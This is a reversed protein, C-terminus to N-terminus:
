TPAALTPIRRCALIKINRSRGAFFLNLQGKLHREIEDEASTVLKGGVWLKTTHASPNKLNDNYATNLAECVENEALTGTSAPIVYRAHVADDVTGEPYFTAANHKGDWVVTWRDAFGLTDLDDMAADITDSTLARRAGNHADRNTLYNSRRARGSRRCICYESSGM